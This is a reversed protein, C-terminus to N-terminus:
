KAAPRLLVGSKYMRRTWRSDERTVSVNCSLVSCKFRNRIIFRQQQNTPQDAAHLFHWGARRANLHPKHLEPLLRALFVGCLLLVIRHRRKLQTFVVRENRRERLDKPKNELKLIVWMEVRGGGEGEGAWSWWKRERQRHWFTGTCMAARNGTPWQFLGASVYSTRLCHQAGRFLCSKSGPRRTASLRLLLCFM